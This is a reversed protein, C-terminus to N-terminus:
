KRGTRYLKESMKKSYKKPIIKEVYDKLRIKM